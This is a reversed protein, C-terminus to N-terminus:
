FPLIVIPLFLIGESTMQKSSNASTYLTYFSLRENAKMTIYDRLKINNFFQVDPLNDAVVNTTGPMFQFPTLLFESDFRPKMM